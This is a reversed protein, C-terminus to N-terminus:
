LDLATPNNLRVGGHNAKGGAAQQCHQHGRGEDQGVWAVPLLGPEEGGDAQGLESVLESLSSNLWSPLKWRMGM